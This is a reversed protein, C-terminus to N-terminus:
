KQPEFYLGLEYREKPAVGHVHETFQTAEIVYRGDNGNCWEAAKM